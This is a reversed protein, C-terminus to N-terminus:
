RTPRDSSAYSRAGHRRAGLGDLEGQVEDMSGQLRKRCAAVRELLAVAQARQGATMEGEVDPPAFPTSELDDWAGEGLRRELEEVKDALDDLVADWTKM